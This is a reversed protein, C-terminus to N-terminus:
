MDQADTLLHVLEVSDLQGFFDFVLKQLVVKIGLIELQDACFQQAAEVHLALRLGEELAERSLVPRDRSGVADAEPTAEVESVNGRGKIVDLLEVEPV